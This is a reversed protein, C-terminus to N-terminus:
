APRRSPALVAGVVEMGLRAARRDPDGGPNYAAVSMARVPVAAAAASVAALLDQRAPWHPAPTMGGPAEEPGAVDLDFHLYWGDAARVRSALMRALRGPAGAGRLGVADLRGIPREALAVLEAADLDSAGILAAAARSVPEVLGAALRWEPLDWGLAVAYAMGALSGTETTRTTQMDGHADIWVVGPLIGARALGGIAGVAHSCDGELVLAFGDPAALAAGVERSTASAIRALNAVTDRSREARGLRVWVPDMVQHGLRELLEVLGQDLLAQPGRAYGLRGVDVQYPVCVPTVRRVLRSAALAAGRRRSRAAAVLRQVLASM